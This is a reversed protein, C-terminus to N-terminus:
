KISYSLFELLMPIKDGFDQMAHDGQTDAMILSRHQPQSYYGQADRYDLVEDGQQLLLLIKAADPVKAVAMEELHILQLHDLQWDPTVQYPLQDQGYLQRFLQWPRMAPNILVAPVAYRAVLQTAYFGGLSSGVLAVQDLAEVVNCLNQWVQLPPMNLDPFHVQHPTFDQCYRKLQQGKISFASSKFGHLYLINMQAVKLHIFDISIKM